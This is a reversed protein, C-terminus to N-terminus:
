RWEITVVNTPTSIGKLSVTRPSSTLFRGTAAARAEESAVIEGGEALACLRSAVHVGSGQYTQGRSAARATHVGIRLEPAFGHANRHETLTRQIAM